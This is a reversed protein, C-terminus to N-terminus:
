QSNHTVATFKKYGGAFEITNSRHIERLGPPQLYYVNHRKVVLQLIAHSRFSEENAGTSGTSRVANGKEIFEKVIQVDSVEFEQLGVICVQQRGDEKMLLKKRDGLLDYLKGGYIEFYSFWLKFKQNRYVPRHLQRVLDNAARLTITANYINQWKRDLLSCPQLSVQTSKYKSAPQHSHYAVESIEVLKKQWPRKMCSIPKGISRNVVNHVHCLWQSFEAHSGSQVPNSRLVENFHNACESCPYMRSLIQVLEKVDKKQQRTPDDPYQAALTHLFTWTARGLDEKTVFPLPSGRSLM